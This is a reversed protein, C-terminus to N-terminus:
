RPAFCSWTCVNTECSWQGACPGIPLNQLDCDSPAIVSPAVSVTPSACWATTSLWMQLGTSPEMAEGTPNVKWLYLSSERWAYQYRAIVASETNYLTMYQRAQQVSLRYTGNQEVPDCPPIVCEVNTAMHFTNNTKLVLMSLDGPRRSDSIFTGIPNLDPGKAAQEITTQATLAAPDESKEEGCAALGLLCILGIKIFNTNLM